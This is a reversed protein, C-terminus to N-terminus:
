NTGAEGYLEDLKELDELVLKPFSLARNGGGSGAENTFLPDRYKRRIEIQSEWTERAGPNQFLFAAFTHIAVEGSGGLQVQPQWGWYARAYTDEILNVYIVKEARELDEGANGRTWIDAYENIARNVEYQAFSRSVGFDNMAVRADQKLQLGVFTLSAVIAAIGVLEAIDKWHVSKM